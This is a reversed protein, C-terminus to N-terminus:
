TLKSRPNPAAPIQIKQHNYDDNRLINPSGAATINPNGQNSGSDATSIWIYLRVSVSRCNWFEEEHSWGGPDFGHRLGFNRAKCLLVTEASHAFGLAELRVPRLRAHGKPSRGGSKANAFLVPAPAELARPSARACGKPSLVEPNAAAFLAPEPALGPPCCAALARLATFRTGATRLM